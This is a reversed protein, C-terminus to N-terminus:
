LLHVTGANDMMVDLGAIAYYSSVIFVEEQHIKAKCFTTNDWLPSRMCTTREIFSTAKLSLLSIKLSGIHHM